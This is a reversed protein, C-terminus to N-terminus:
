ITKIKIKGGKITVDQGHAELVNCLWLLKVNNKAKTVKTASKLVATFANRAAKSLDELSPKSNLIKIEYKLLESRAAKELDSFGKINEIGIVNSKSISFEKLSFPQPAPKSNEPKSNKESELRANELRLKELDGQLKSNLRSEATDTAVKIMREAEYADFATAGRVPTLVSQTNPATDVKGVTGIKGNGDLDVRFVKELLSIFNNWIKASAFSVFMALSKRQPEQLNEKSGILAIIIALILLLGGASVEALVMYKNFSAKTKLHDNNAAQDIDAYTSVIKLTKDTSEKTTSLLTAKSANYQSLAGAIAKNSTKRAKLVRWKFGDINESAWSSAGSLIYQELQRKVAPDRHAALALLKKNEETKVNEYNISDAKVQREIVSISKLTVNNQEAVEKKHDEPKEFVFNGLIPNAWISSVSTSVLLILSIGLLVFTIADFVRDFLRRMAVPLTNGLTHDIVMFLMFAFFVGGLVPIGYNIGFGEGIKYSLAITTVALFMGAFSRARILAFFINKIEM